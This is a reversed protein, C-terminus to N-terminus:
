MSEFQYGFLRIDRHWHKTVKDYIEETYYDRYDRHRSANVHPLNLDLQLRKTVQAFDENLREFRGVFDVALDGKNDCLFLHQHRKNRNIEFDIYESFSMKAIQKQRHHSETQSLFSYLSVIWDYPNRVFGFKFFQEFDQQPIYKMAESICTHRAFYRSHYNRKIGSKSLLRNLLRKDIVNAFPELTRYMSTGASKSVHVFIFKHQDSLLM